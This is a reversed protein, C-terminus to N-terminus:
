FSVEHQEGKSISFLFSYKVSLSSLHLNQMLSPTGPLIGDEHVHGAEKGQKHKERMEDGGSSPILCLRISSVQM